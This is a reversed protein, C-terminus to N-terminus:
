HNKMESTKEESNENFDDTNDSQSNVTHGNENTDNIIKQIDSDSFNLEDPFQVHKRLSDSQQLQPKIHKSSTAYDALPIVDVPFDAAWSLLMWNLKMWDLLIWQRKEDLGIIDLEIEDLEIKDLEIIIEM